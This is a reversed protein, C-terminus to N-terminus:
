DKVESAVLNKMSVQELRTQVIRGSKWSNAGKLVDPMAIDARNRRREMTSIGLRRDRAEVMSANAQGDATFAMMLQPIGYPFDDKDIQWTHFTKGYTTVLDEFYAHEALEPIGPAILIGSKVEYHHSHWLLKEDEPLERFRDANIIYEIGILRADPKNYDFIM